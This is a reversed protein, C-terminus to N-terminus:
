LVRRREGKKEGWVKMKRQKGGVQKRRILRRNLTIAPSKGRPWCRDADARRQHADPRISPGRPGPGKPGLDGM